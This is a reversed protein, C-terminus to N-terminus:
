ELPPIQQLPRHENAFEWNALLEDRHQAAWEMVLGLARRPLKGEIVRLSSIEIKAMDNGYYAHFHPLGHDDFYM